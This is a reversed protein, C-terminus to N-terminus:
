TGALFAVSMIPNDPKEFPVRPYQLPGLDGQNGPNAYNDETPLQLFQAVCQEKTCTGVHESVQFDDEYM